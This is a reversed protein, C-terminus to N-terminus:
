CEVAGMSPHTADRVTGNYDSGLLKIWTAKPVQAVAGPPLWVRNLLVWDWETGTDIAGDLTNDLPTGANCGAGSGAPTFDTVSPIHLDRWEAGVFDYLPLGTNTSVVDGTGACAAPPTVRAWQNYGFTLTGLGSVPLQVSCFLANPTYGPQVAILNDLVKFTNLFSAPRTVAGVNGEAQEPAATLDRFHYYLAARGATQTGAIVTNGVDYGTLKTKAFINSTEAAAMMLITAGSALFNNRAVIQQGPVGGGLYSPPGFAQTGAPNEQAKSWYPFPRDDIAPPTLPALTGFLTNQEIIFDDGQSMSISHNGCKNGRVLVRSVFYIGVCESHQDHVNMGEILIECGACNTITFQGGVRYHNKGVQNDPYYLETDYVEWERIVVRNASSVAFAYGASMHARMRQFIAEISCATGPTCTPAVSATSIVSLANGASGEFDIDQMTFYKKNAGFTLAVLSTLGGAPRPLSGGPGYTGHPQGPFGVANNFRATDWACKGTVPSGNSQTQSTTFGSDTRCTPSTAGYTGQIKPRAQAYTYLYPDLAATWNTPSNVYPKAGATGCAVPTGPTVACYYSGVIQRNASVSVGGSVAWSWQEPFTDGAHLWVDDGAQTAKGAIASLHQLSATITNGANPADKGANDVFFARGGQPIEEYVISPSGTVTWVRPVSVAAGNANDGVANLTNTGAVANTIFYFPNGLDTTTLTDNSPRAGTVAWTPAVNGCVRSATVHPDGVAIYNRWFEPALNEGANLNIGPFAQLPFAPFCRTDFDVSTTTNITRQFDYAFTQSAAFALALAALRRM